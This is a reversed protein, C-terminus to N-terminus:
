MQAILQLNGVVGRRRDAVGALYRLVDSGPEAGLRVPVAVDPALEELLGLAFAGDTRFEVQAGGAHEHEARQVPGGLPPVGAAAREVLDNAGGLCEDPGAQAGRVLRVGRLGRRMSGAAGGLLGRLGRASWRGPTVRGVAGQAGADQVAGECRTWPELVRVSGGVAGRGRWWVSIVRD